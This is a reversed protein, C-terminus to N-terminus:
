YDDDDDDSREESMLLAFRNNIEETGRGGTRARRGGGGRGRRRHGGGRKRREAASSPPHTNSSCNRVADLLSSYLQRSFSGGGLLSEAAQGGKLYNSLGHVLTGSFLRLCLSLPAVLNYIIYKRM